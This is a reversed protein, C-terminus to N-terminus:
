GIVVNDRITPFRLLFDEFLYMSVESLTRTQHGSGCRATGCERTGRCIGNIGVSIGPLVIIFLDDLLCILHQGICVIGQSGQMACSYTHTVRVKDFSYLRRF